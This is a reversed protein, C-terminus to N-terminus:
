TLDGTNRFGKVILWVAFAMEQVGIPLALVVQPTSLPGILGFMVLLGSIMCLTVGVLGWGSLWRPVLKTQYFVVYYMFAGITFVLVPMVNGLWHYAGQLLVGSTQFYSSDPAGAKVFQQSLTLLSLLGVVAVIYLAGEVLRFGVAGLALSENYKRLIPYLSIAISASAAGGILVLFAGILVQNGNGSVSVLYNSANISGLFPLSLISALTAIIFLIGATRAVRKEDIATSVKDIGGLAKADSLSTTKM